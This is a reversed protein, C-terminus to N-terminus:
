AGGQRHEASSRADASAKLHADQDTYSCIWAVADQVSRALTKTGSQIHEVEIREGDSGLDWCRVLFSAHRRTM